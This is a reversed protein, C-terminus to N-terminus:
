TNDYVAFSGLVGPRAAGNPAFTAFGAYEGTPAGADSASLIENNNELLRLTGAETCDLTYASGNKFLFDRSKLITTTGAKVYGLRVKTWTASAFVYDTASNLNARAILFNESQGFVDQPTSITASVKHLASGATTKHLAFASRKVNDLALNYIAYKNTIGLTGQGTGSEWQLWKSGLTVANAYTSFDELVIAGGNELKQLRLGITGLTGLAQGVTNSFDQVDFTGFGSQGSWATFGKIISDILEQVIPIGIDGTPLFQTPGAFPPTKPLEESIRKSPDHSLSLQRRDYARPMLIGILLL